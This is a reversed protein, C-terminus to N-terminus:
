CGSKGGPPKGCSSMLCRHIYLNGFMEDSFPEIITAAARPDDPLEGLLQQKELMHPAKVGERTRQEWADHLEANFSACIQQDLVAAVAHIVDGNGRVMDLLWPPKGGLVARSFAFKWSRLVRLLHLACCLYWVPREQAYM